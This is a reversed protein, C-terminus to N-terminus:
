EESDPEYNRAPQIRKSEHGRQLDRLNIVISKALMYFALETRSITIGLTLPEHAGSQACSLDGSSDDGISDKTAGADHPDNLPNFIVWRICILWARNLAVNTPM